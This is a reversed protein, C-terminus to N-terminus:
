NLIYNFIIFIRNPKHRKKEKKTHKHFYMIRVRFEYEIPSGIDGESKMDSEGKVEGTFYVQSPKAV